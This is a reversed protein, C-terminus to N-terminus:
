VTGESDERLRLGLDFVQALVLAGLGALLAGVPLSYREAGVYAPWTGPALALVALDAAAVAVQLLPAGVLLAAAMVRLRRVNGAEFPSCRRVSGAIGRLQWLLLLYLAVGLLDPVATVAVQAVTPDELYVALLARGDAAYGAPLDVLAPALSLRLPLRGLLTDGGRVLGVVDDLVLFCGYAAVIGILGDVTLRALGAARSRAM